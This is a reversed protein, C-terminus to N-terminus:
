TKMLQKVADVVKGPSPLVEQELAKSSPIPVPEAGLRFTGLGNRGGAAALLQCIVEAGWGGHSVGEELVLVRGSRVASDTLDAVPVPSVQSPIVLEVIIEDRMFVEYAAEAALAAMGGYAILTVDPMGGSVLSLSLTPFEADAASVTRVHFRGCRGDEGVAELQKPYLLKNEIFLVPDDSGTVSRQLLEGPDHYESPAVITLRPVSLFMAELTQSHTPGYGRYGGMPTRITLPVSVQDNYMYSFKTAHNVIQDACLMLFDGFMIEVIPRRGRIAMGIAVGTLGAESIPTTLVREPYKMSLGKAVKFAGGYPDLLDEGILLVDEHEAFMGHLANNLSEVYRM